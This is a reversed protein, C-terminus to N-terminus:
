WEIMTLTAALSWTAATAFAISSRSRSTASLPASCAPMSIVTNTSTNLRSLVIMTPMAATLMMCTNKMSTYSRWRSIPIMRATPALRPSMRSIM